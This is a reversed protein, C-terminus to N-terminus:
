ETEMQAFSPEEVESVVCLAPPNGHPNPVGLTEVNGEKELASADLKANASEDIKSHSSIFIGDKGQNLALTDITTCHPLEKTSISSDDDSKPGNLEPKDGGDLFGSGSETNGAGGIVDDSEAADMESDEVVVRDEDPAAMSPSCAPHGNKTDGEFLENAMEIDNAEVHNNELAHNQLEDGEKRLNNAAEGTIHESEATQVEKEGNETNIQGTQKEQAAKRKALARERNLRIREQQEPTLIVMRNSAEVQVGFTQLNNDVAGGGEQSPAEDTGNEHIEQNNPATETDSRDEDNVSEEEGRRVRKICNQVLKKASLNEVQEVVDMFPFKPFLRHAWHEYRQMLLKLDSVEHGKGKFKIDECIHRLAPIGRDGCLRVEDLKPRPSRNVRRKKHPEKKNIDSATQDHQNEAGDNHKTSDDREPSLPPLPPPLSFPDDDNFLDLAERGENTDDSECIIRHRSM